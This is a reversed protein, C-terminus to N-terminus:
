FLLILYAYSRMVCYVNTNRYGNDDNTDDNNNNSDYANNNTISLM